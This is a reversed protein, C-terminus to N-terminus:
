SLGGKSISQYRRAKSPTLTTNYDAPCYETDNCVGTWSLRKDMWEIDMVAKLHLTESLLSLREIEKIQFVVEVNTPNPRQNFWVKRMDRVGYLDIWISDPLNEFYRGAM